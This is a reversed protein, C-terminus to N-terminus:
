EPCNFKPSPDPLPPKTWINASSLVPVFPKVCRRWHKLTPEKLKVDTRVVVLNIDQRFLKQRVTCTNPNSM